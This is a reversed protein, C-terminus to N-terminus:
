PLRLLHAQVTEVFGQLQQEYKTPLCCTIVKGAKLPVAASM